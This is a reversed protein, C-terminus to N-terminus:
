KPGRQKIWDYYLTGASEIDPSLGMNNVIRLYEDVFLEYSTLMRTLSIATMSYKTKLQVFKELEAQYNPRYKFGLRTQQQQVWPQYVHDLDVCYYKSDQQAVDREMKIFEDPHISYIVHSFPAPYIQNFYYFLKHQYFDPWARHFDQWSDFQTSIGEFSYYKARDQIVPPIGTDIVADKLVEIPVQPITEASLSFLRTLFNGAHGPMYMIFISKM